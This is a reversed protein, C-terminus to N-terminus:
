HRRGIWYALCRREISAASEDSAFWQVAIDQYTQTYYRAWRFAEMARQFSLKSNNAAVFIVKSPFFPFESYPQAGNATASDTASTEM